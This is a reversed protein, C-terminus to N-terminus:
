LIHTSKKDKILEDNYKVGKPIRYGCFVTDETMTRMGGVTIPALRTSEKIVAKLYPLKDLIENTIPLHKNPLHQKLESRLKEQVQKNKALFYLTAGLVKATQM